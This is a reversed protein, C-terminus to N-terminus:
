RAYEHKYVLMWARFAAFSTLVLLKAKATGLKQGKLATSTSCLTFGYHQFIETCNMLSQIALM